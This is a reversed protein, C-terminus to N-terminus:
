FAIEETFDVWKHAQIPNSIGRDHAETLVEDINFVSGDNASIIEERFAIGWTFDNECYDYFMVQVPFNYYRKNDM